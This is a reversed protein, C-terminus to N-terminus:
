KENKVAERANRAAKNLNTEHSLAVKQIEEPTYGKNLLARKISIPLPTSNLTIYDDEVSQEPVQIMLRELETDIKQSVVAFNVRSIEEKNLVGGDFSIDATLTNFIHATSEAVESVSKFISDSEPLVDVGYIEIVQQEISVGNCVGDLINFINQGEKRCLVNAALIEDTSIGMNRYNNIDEITLVGHTYETIDNFASEYWYESFYKDELACIEEVMTFDYDTTLWFKYVQILSQITTGKDLIRNIVELQADTLNYECVFATYDSVNEYMARPSCAMISAFEEPKKLNIKKSLRESIEDFYMDVSIEKSPLQVKDADFVPEEKTDIGEASEVVEPQIVEQVECAEEQEAYAVSCFALFICLSLIFKKFM